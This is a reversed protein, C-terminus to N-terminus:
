RLGQLNLPASARHLTRGCVRQGVLRLLQGVHEQVNGLHPPACVRLREVPCRMPLSRQCHEVAREQDSGAVDVCGVVVALQQQQVHQM